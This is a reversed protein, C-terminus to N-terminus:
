AGKEYTATELIKLAHAKSLGFDGINDVASDRIDFRRVSFIRPGHPPKESTMFYVGGSREYLPTELRTDFFRMSDPTFWYRGAETNAEKMREWTWTM